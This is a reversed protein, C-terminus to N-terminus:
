PTLLEEVAQFRLRGSPPGRLVSYYSRDDLLEYGTGFVCNIVVRFSNVPSISPYVANRCGDPLYYANLIAMRARLRPADPHKWDLGLDPGHDAQLLIIPRSRSSALIADITELTITSTYTVQDTFFTNLDSYPNGPRNSIVSEPIESGDARFVYPQHPSGIHAFVLKPGPIDPVDRLNAFTGLTLRRRNERPADLTETVLARLDHERLADLDM